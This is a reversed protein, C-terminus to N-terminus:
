ALTKFKVVKFLRLFKFNAFILRKLFDIEELSVRGVQEKLVLEIDMNMIVDEGREKIIQQYMPNQQFRRLQDAKQRQQIEEQM